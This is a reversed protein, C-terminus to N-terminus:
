LGSTTSLMLCVMGCTQPERVTVPTM